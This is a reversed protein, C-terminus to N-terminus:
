YNSSIWARYLFLPNGVIYRKWMRRPEQILRWVWEFGANRLFLPARSIRGAYFDLCGGVGIRVAPKLQEAYQTMWLEQKPAGFAIILIDAGSQNIDQIVQDTENAEFYGHRTGAIHLQAVKKEMNRACQSAVGPRAGLLYIALGNQAAKECTLPFLDTGNVNDIVTIGKMKAAIKVGIGDPFVAQMSVLSSKYKVSNWVKNLCDANVFAINTQVRKLAQEVIMDVAEDLCCNHIDVGFLKFKQFGLKIESM